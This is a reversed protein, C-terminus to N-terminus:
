MVKQILIGINQLVHKELYLGICVDKCFVYM